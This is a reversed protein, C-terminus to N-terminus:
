ELDPALDALYGELQAMEGACRPCEALHWAVTAAEDGSLVGLYYEGLAEPSPCDFRYLQAMLRDQLHALCRARERCHPCRELHAIVQDDAEGDLYALLDGEAPQPPSVCTM